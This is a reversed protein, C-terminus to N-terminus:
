QIKFTVLAQIASLAFSAESKELKTTTTLTFSGNLVQKANDAVLVNEMRHKLFSRINMYGCETIRGFITNLTQKAKAISASLAHIHNQARRSRRFSQTIRKM